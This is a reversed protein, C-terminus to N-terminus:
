AYTAVTPQLFYVTASNAAFTIGVQVVAMGTAALLLVPPRSGRVLRVAVALLAWGLAVLLATDLGLSVVVAYFLGLPVIVAEALHRVVDLALRLRAPMVVLRPNSSHHQPM